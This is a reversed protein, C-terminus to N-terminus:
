QYDGLSLSRFRSVQKMRLVAGWDDQDEHMHVPGRMLVLIEGALPGKSMGKGTDSISEGGM